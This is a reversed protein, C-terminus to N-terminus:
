LENHEAKIIDNVEDVMESITFEDRYFQAIIHENEGIVVVFRDEVDAELTCIGAGWSEIEGLLLEGIIASDVQPHEGTM